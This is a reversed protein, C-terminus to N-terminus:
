AGEAVRIKLMADAMMYCRRARKEHKEPSESGPDVECNGMYGALVQGAFYDRLSMGGAFGQVEMACGCQCRKNIPAPFAPM